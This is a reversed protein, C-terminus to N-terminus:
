TVLAEARVRTRRRHRLSDVTFLALAVWIAGFGLWRGLPMPEGYLLVGTLFTLTPTLYQLLGLTTLPVRTTAAGFCLLPLATVV